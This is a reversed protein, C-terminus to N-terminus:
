LESTEPGEILAGYGPDEAEHDVGKAWRWAFILSSPWGNEQRQVRQARPVEGSALRLSIRLSWFNRSSWVFEGSEGAERISAAECNCM